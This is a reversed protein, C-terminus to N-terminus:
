NWVPPSTTYTSPTTRTNSSGLCLCGVSPSPPPNAQITLRTWVCASRTRPTRSCTCTAYTRSVLTMRRTLVPQLQKCSPTMPRPSVPLMGTPTYIVRRGSVTLRSRSSLSLLRLVVRYRPFDASIVPLRGAEICTSTALIHTLQHDELEVGDTIHHLHVMINPHHQLWTVLVKCISLSFHQRFHHSADLSLCLMNSSDSFVHVQHINDLGVNYAQHIGDAIAQLKANDSIALGAASWDDYLDGEHWLHFAVVPQLPKV